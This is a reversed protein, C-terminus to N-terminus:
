EPKGGCTWMRCYAARDEYISCRNNVLMPCPTGSGKLAVIMEGNPGIQEGILYAEGTILDRFKQPIYVLTVAGHSICCEGCPTACDTM